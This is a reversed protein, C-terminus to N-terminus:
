SSAALATAAGMVTVRGSPFAWGPMAPTDVGMSMALASDGDRAFAVTTALTLSHRPVLPAQSSRAGRERETGVGGRM